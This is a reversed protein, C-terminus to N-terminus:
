LQRIQQLLHHQSVEVKLNPPADSLGAGSLLVLSTKRSFIMSDELDVTRNQDSQKVYDRTLQLSMRNRIKRRVRVEAQDSKELKLFVTVRGQGFVESLVLAQQIGRFQTELRRTQVPAYHRFEQHGRTVRLSLSYECWPHVQSPREAKYCKM